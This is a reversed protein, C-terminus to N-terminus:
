GILKSAAIGILSNLHARDILTAAIGIVSYDHYKNLVVSWRTSASGGWEERTSASDEKNHVNHGKWEREREREPWAEKLISTSDRGDERERAWAVGRKNQVDLGTWITNTDDDHHGHQINRTRFRERFWIMTMSWHCKLRRGTTHTPYM